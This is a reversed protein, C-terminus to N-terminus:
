QPVGLEPRQSPSAKPGEASDQFRYLVLFVVKRSQKAPKRLVRIHFTHALIQILRTLM